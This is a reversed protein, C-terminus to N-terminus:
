LMQFASLYSCVVIYWDLIFTYVKLPKNKCAMKRLGNKGPFRHLADIPLCHLGLDSAVYHPM